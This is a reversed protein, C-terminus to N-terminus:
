SIAWPRGSRLRSSRSGPSRNSAFTWRLWTLPAAHGAIHARAAERAGKGGQVRNSGPAPLDAKGGTKWAGCGSLLCLCGIVALWAAARSM